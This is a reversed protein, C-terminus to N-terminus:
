EPLVEALSKPLGSALVGEIASGEALVAADLNQLGLTEPPNGEDLLGNLLEGVTLSGGCRYLLFNGPRDAVEALIKNRTLDELIDQVLRHPLGRQNAFESASFPGGEKGRARRATEACFALALLFRARMSARAAQGELSYTRYNQVAFSIECGLLVIQWSTYVWMLLIPLVAFGGYLTSYKGIGIQLMTCLKLWIGFLVATVVGGVLAPVTKVKTNPMFGLLFAFTLSALLLTIGTKFFGSDILSNVAVTANGGVTKEMIKKIHAVVPITSAAIMLFPLVLITCLYDPIRRQIPRGKEVGWVENFSSEVKGLVGIVMWLLMVAGIGGLTGFGINDLQELLKDAIERMQSSFAKTAAAKDLSETADAPAAAPTAVAASQEMQTLWNDLQRNIQRKALDAGGFARAMALTLALVPVLAMMSFFTLSAAHLSCRTQRFGRVVLAVLKLTGWLMRKSKPLDVPQVNWLDHKVFELARALKKNGM